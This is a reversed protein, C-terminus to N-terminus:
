LTVRDPGAGQPNRSCPPFSKLMGRVMELTLVGVCVCWVCGCVCVCVCVECDEVRSQFAWLAMHSNLSLMDQNSEGVGRGKRWEGGGRGGGRDRCM